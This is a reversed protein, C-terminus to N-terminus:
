QPTFAIKDDPVVNNTIGDVSMMAVVIFRACSFFEEFDDLWEFMSDTCNQVGTSSSTLLVPIKSRSSSNFVSFRAIILM